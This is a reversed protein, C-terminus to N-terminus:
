RQSPHKEGESKVFSPKPAKPMKQQQQDHFQAVLVPVRKYMAPGKVGRQTEHHFNSVPPATNRYQSSLTESSIRIGQKWSSHPSERNSSSPTTHSETSSAVLHIFSDLSLLSSQSSSKQTMLPPEPINNVVPVQRYKLHGERVLTRYANTAEFFSHILSTFSRFVVL